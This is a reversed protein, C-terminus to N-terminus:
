RRVHSLEGSLASLGLKLARLAKARVLPDDSLIQPKLVRYLEGRISFDNELNLSSLSLVSENIVETVGFRSLTQRIIETDIDCGSQGILRLRIFYKKGVSPKYPVLTQESRKLVESVDSAGGLDVTVTAYVWPCLRVRQASVTKKGGFSDFTVIIAGKEGEEGHDRGAICGSYAYGNEPATGLHIHGLASYDFGAHSLVGSPIPAYISMPKDLDTHALLVSHDETQRVTFGEIPNRAYESSTFAYGYVTLSLEPIRIASLREDKFVHVNQPFDAFRYPSTSNYPDHNGPAIIFIVDPMSAFSARLFDLTDATYYDSDFLDGAILVAKCGENRALSLASSFVDRLERRREASASPALGSFRSDLHVDAIHLLKLM